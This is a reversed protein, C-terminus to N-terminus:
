RSPSPGEHMGVLVQARRQEVMRVRLESAVRPLEKNQLPRSLTFKTAETGIVLNMSPRPYAREYFLRVDRIAAYDISRAPFPWDYRLVVTSAGIEVTHPGAGVLAKHAPMWILCIFGLVFAVWLTALTADIARYLINTAADATKLRRHWLLAALMTRNRWTGLLLGISMFAAVASTLVMMGLVFGTSQPKAVQIILPGSPSLLLM